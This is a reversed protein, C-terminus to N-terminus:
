RVLKYGEIVAMLGTLASLGVLSWIAVKHRKDKKKVMEVAIIGSAVSTVGDALFRMAGSDIVAVPEVSASAPATIFQGLAPYPRWPAIPITRM